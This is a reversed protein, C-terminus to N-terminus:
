HKIKPFMNDFDDASRDCKNFNTKLFEITKDELTIKEIKNGFNTHFHKDRYFNYGESSRGNKRFLYCPSLSAKWGYPYPNVIMIENTKIGFMTPTGRYLYIEYNNEFARFEHKIKELSEIIEKGIEGRPKIEQDARLDSYLPHTLVIITQAGGEMALKLAKFFEKSDKSEFIGLLSSGTIFIKEKEKNISEIISSERLASNRDPFIEVLGLNNCSNILKVRSVCDMEMREGIYDFLEQSQEKVNDMGAIHLLYAVIAGAIFSTALGIFATPWPTDKIPTYALIVSIILFLLGIIAISIILSLKRNKM